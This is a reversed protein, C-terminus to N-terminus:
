EEIKWGYEGILPVFVCNFYNEKKFSDGSKTIRVLMQSYSDGEPLVLKGEDDLQDLLPQPAEPAGASIIMAQYPAHESWGATGDGEKFYVNEYRMEQLKEQATQLLSPVREVSYVEGALEALLASEYGSGTGVELVREHGQLELLEIMSAVMYPQSITQNEGISIPYDQYAESQFKEPVFLHRPVKRFANLLRDDKIGRAVLQTAVMKDREEARTASPNEMILGRFGV